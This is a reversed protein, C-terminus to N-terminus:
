WMPLSLSWGPAFLARSQQWEHMYRDAVSPLFEDFSAWIALLKKEAFLGRGGKQLLIRMLGIKQEESAASIDRVPLMIVDWVNGSMLAADIRQLAQRRRILLPALVQEGKNYSTLMYSDEKVREPAFPERVDEHVEARIFQSRTLEALSRKLVSTYKAVLVEELTAWDDEGPEGRLRLKLPIYCNITQM